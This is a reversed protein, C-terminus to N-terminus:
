RTGARAEVVLDADDTPRAHQIGALQAHAHVMLGGVLMWRDPSLNNAIEKVREFVDQSVRSEVSADAGHALLRSFRQQGAPMLRSLAGSCCSVGVLPRKRSGAPPELLKSRRLKTVVGHRYHRFELLAPWPRASGLIEINVM